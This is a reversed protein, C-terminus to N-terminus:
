GRGAGEPIEYIEDVIAPGAVDSPEAVFYVHVGTFLCNAADVGTCPGRYYAAADGNMAQFYTANPGPGERLGRIATKWSNDPMPNDDLTSCDVGSNLKVSRQLRGADVRWAVLDLDGDADADVWFTMSNFGEGAEDGFEAFGSSLGTTTACPTIQTIDAELGTTAEYLQVRMQSRAFSVETASNLSTVFRLGTAFVAFFLVLAVVADLLSFGGRQSLHSAQPTQTTATRPRV